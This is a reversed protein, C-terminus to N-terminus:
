GYFMLVVPMLKRIFRMLRNTFATWNEKGIAERIGDYDVELIKQMVDMSTGVPDEPDLQEAADLQSVATKITNCNVGIKNKERLNIRLERDPPAAAVMPCLLAAALTALILKKM